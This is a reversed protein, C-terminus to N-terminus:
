CSVAHLRQRCLAQARAINVGHQLPRSTVTKSHQTTQKNKLKRNEHSLDGVSYWGLEVVCGREFFCM